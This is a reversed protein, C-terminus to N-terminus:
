ALSQSNRLSLKLLASALSEFGHIRFGSVEFSFGETWQESGLTAFDRSM